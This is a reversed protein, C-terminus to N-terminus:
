GGVPVGHEREIALLREVVKLVSPRGNDRRWVILAGFLGKSLVEGRHSIVDTGRGDILHGLVILIAVFLFLRVPGELDVNLRIIDVSPSILILVVELVLQRDNGVVRNHELHVSVILGGLATTFVLQNAPEHRPRVGDRGVPTVLLEEELTM